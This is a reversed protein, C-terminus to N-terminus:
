KEAREIAKLTQKLEQCHILVKETIEQQKGLSLSGLGPFSRKTQIAQILDSAHKAFKGVREVFMPYDGAREEIFTELKSKGVDYKESVVASLIERRLSGVRGLDNESVSKLKQKLAARSQVLREKELAQYNVSPSSNAM